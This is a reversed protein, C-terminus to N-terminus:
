RACCPSGPTPPAACASPSRATPSNSSPARHICALQKVLVQVLRPDFKGAHQAFLERLADRALYPARDGRPRIMATFADALAVIRAGIPIADGSLGRPYGSGDLREHHMAVATLWIEDDIGIANLLEVARAPHGAVMQRHHDLLEGRHTALDDHDEVVAVDLTMAAAILSYHQETPLGESLALLKTVAAAHLVRESLTHSQALLQQVGIVQDPDRIFLDDLWRVVAELDTWTMNSPPRVVSRLLRDIQEVLLALHGETSSTRQVEDEFRESPSPPPLEVAKRFFGRENLRELVSESAVVKGKQLLVQGSRDVIAIELRDGIKLGLGSAPVLEM